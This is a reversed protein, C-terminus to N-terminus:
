KVFVLGRAKLVRAGDSEIIVRTGESLVIRYSDYREALFWKQGPPVNKERSEHIKFGREELYRLAESVPMGSRIYKAVVHEIDARSKGAPRPVGAIERLFPDDTM